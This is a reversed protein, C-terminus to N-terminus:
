KKVVLIKGKAVMKGDNVVRIMYYGNDVTEGWHTKGDWEVTRNAGLGEGEGKYQWIIRANADFIYIDVAEGTAASFLMKLPHSRDNPNFPNPYAM